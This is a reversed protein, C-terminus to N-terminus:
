TSAICHKGVSATVRRSAPPSRQANNCNPQIVISAQTSPAIVFSSKIQSPTQRHLRKGDLIWLEPEDGYQSYSGKIQHISASSSIVLAGAVVAGAVSKRRSASTM